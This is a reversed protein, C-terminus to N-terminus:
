NPYTHALLRHLQRPFEPHACLCTPGPLGLAPLGWALVLSLGQPVRPIGSKHGARMQSIPRNKLAKRTLPHTQMRTSGRQTYQSPKFNLWNEAEGEGM